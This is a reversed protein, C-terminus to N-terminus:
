WRNWALGDRWWINCASTTVWAGRYDRDCTWDDDIAPECTAGPNGGRGSVMELEADSLEATDTSKCLGEKLADINIFQM